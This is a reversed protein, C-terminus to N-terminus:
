GPAAPRRSPNAPPASSLIFDWHSPMAEVSDKVAARLEELRTQIKLSDLGDVLPDYRRPIINQGVMVSLWSLVPFLETEERLIRGHSRFLEIKERLTDTLPIDRCHQWFPGTRETQSYHLLLFDRVRAFEAELLRNYRDTDAAAFDRDPFFKLLMAIGRQILHISTAELPELFGAALGLAVVNRNWAATRRGPRFRLAVPESLARGSLNRRLLAGAADDASFEGSYIYGNGDRHQLPIQWQWGADRATVLTYPNPAAARESHVIMARDCPLWQSWDEYGTRLAGEILLGQFGSCDIFLDASVSEGSELTVSDVFGDAGRVSV